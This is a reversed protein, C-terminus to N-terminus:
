INRDISLEGYSGQLFDDDDDEGNLDDDLGEREWDQSDFDYNVASQYVTYDNSYNQEMNPNEHNENFKKGLTITGHEHNDTTDNCRQLENGAYSHPREDHQLNYNRDMGPERDNNHQTNM